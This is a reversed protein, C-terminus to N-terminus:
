SAFLKKKEFMRFNYNLIVSRVLRLVKPWTFAPIEPNPSSFERGDRGGEWPCRRKKCKDNCLTVKNRAM